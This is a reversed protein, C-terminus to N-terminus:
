TASRLGRPRALADLERREAVRVRALERAVQAAFRDRLIHHIPEELAGTPVGEEDLLHQSLQAVGAIGLHGRGNLFDDLCVEIPERGTRAVKDLDGRDDTAREPHRQQAAEHGGARQGLIERRELLLAEEHAARDPGLEGVREPM